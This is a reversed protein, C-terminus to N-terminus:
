PPVIPQLSSVLPVPQAPPAPPNAPTPAPVVPTAPKSPLPTPKAPSVPIPVEPYTAPQSDYTPGPAAPAVTAPTETCHLVDDVCCCDPGQIPTPAPKPAPLAPPPLPPLSPPPPVPKASVHGLSILYAFVLVVAPIALLGWAVMNMGRSSLLLTLLLVVAFFVAHGQISAPENLILDRAVVAAGLALVVLSPYVM